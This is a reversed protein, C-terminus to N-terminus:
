NFQSSGQRQRMTDADWFATRNFAKKDISMAEDIWTPMFYPSMKKLPMYPKTWMLLEMVRRLTTPACSSHQKAIAENIMPIVWERNATLWEKNVSERHNEIKISM